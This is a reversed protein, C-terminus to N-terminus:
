SVPSLHTVLWLALGAELPPQMLQQPAHDEIDQKSLPIVPEARTLLNFLLHLLSTFAWLLYSQSSHVGMALQAARIRAKKKGEIRKKKDRKQRQEAQAKVEQMEQLLKEEEDQM